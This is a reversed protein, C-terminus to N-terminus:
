KKPAIHKSLIHYLYGQKEWRRKKGSTALFFCVCLLCGHADKPVKCVGVEKCPQGLLLLDVKEPLLDEEVLLPLHGALSLKLRIGVVEEEDDHTDKDEKHLSTKGKQLGPSDAHLVGGVDQKLNEKKKANAEKL